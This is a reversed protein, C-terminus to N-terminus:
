GVHRYLFRGSFALLRAPVYALARRALTGNCIRRSAHPISPSTWYTLLSRTAGWRDKFTALGKNDLDSRGFDFEGLNYRIADEIARWLLMPCGGLNHDRADSCGYKFVMTNKFQLTIISAIAEGNKFAVRVKASEGLGGILEHFWALPQPPLQHRRRTMLQLRYFESILGESRGEKYDLREREARRIKRQISDKSFRCFVEAPNSTLLLEHKFFRTSASFGTYRAPSVRLPRLEAYRCRSGVRLHAISSLLGDLEASSSALPECHDSFPLSVWRSGTLASNVRCFAVGNTLEAKPPCTTVVFPEFSYTRQLASLWGPTHFVSASPHRLLLEQWRSDTLPNLSYVPNSYVISSDNKPVRNVEPAVREIEDADKHALNQRM